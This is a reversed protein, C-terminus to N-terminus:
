RYYGDIPSDGQNPPYPQDDGYPDVNTFAGSYSTSPAAGSAPGGTYANSPDYDGGQYSPDNGEGQHTPAYGQYSPDYGYSGDAQQIYQQSQDDYVVLEANSHLQDYNPPVASYDDHCGVNQHQAPYPNSYYHLRDNPYEYSQPPASGGDDDNTGILSRNGDSNGPDYQDDFEQIHRPHDNLNDPSVNM